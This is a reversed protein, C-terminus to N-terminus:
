EVIVVIRSKFECRSLSLKQIELAVQAALYLVWAGLSAGDILVVAALGRSGDPVVVCTGACSSSHGKGPTPRRKQNTTAGSTATLDMVPM